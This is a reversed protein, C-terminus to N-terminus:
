KDTMIWLEYNKWGWEVGKKERFPDVREEIM